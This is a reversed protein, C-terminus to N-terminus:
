IGLSAKVQELSVFEANELRREVEQIDFADEVLDAIREYEEVTLVVHTPKGSADTLIQRAPSKDSM